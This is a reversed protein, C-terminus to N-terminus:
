LLVEEPFTSLKFVFDGQQGPCYVFCLYALRECKLSPLLFRGRPGAILEDTSKFIYVLAFLRRRENIVDCFLFTAPKKSNPPLAAPTITKEDLLDQQLQVCGM